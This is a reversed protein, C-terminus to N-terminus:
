LTWANTTAERVVLDTQSLHEPAWQGFRELSLKRPPLVVEQAADIAAVMVYHKHVDLAVFREIRAM